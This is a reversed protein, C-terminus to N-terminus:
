TLGELNILFKEFLLTSMMQHNIGLTLKPAVCAYVCPCVCVCVCVIPRPSLVYECCM